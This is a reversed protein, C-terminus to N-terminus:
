RRRYLPEQGCARGLCQFMASASPRRRSAAHQAAPPRPAAACAALAPLCRHTHLWVLRNTHLWVLRRKLRPPM